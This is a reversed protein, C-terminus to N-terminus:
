EKSPFPQKPPFKNRWFGGRATLSGKSCSQIENLDKTGLNTENYDKCYIFKKDIYPADLILLSEPFGVVGRGRARTRYNSRVSARRGGVNGGSGPGSIGFGLGM